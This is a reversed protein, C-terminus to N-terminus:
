ESRYIYIGYFVVALTSVLSVLFFCKALITYSYSVGIEHKGKPIVVEVGPM